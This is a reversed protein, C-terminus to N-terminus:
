IRPALYQVAYLFLSGVVVFAWYLVLAQVGTYRERSFHGRLTLALVVSGALLVAIVHLGAYGAITWDLSDFAHETWLRERNGYERAKWLLYTLVLLLGVPLGAVLGVARGRALARLGLWVPLVSVLLLAQTVTPGLLSPPDVGPPPWAEAGLALYFYSFGFLLLLTAEIAILMLVGWIIPSRTGTLQRPLSGGELPPTTHIAPDSTM